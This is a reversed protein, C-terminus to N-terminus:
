NVPLLLEREMNERVESDELHVVEGCFSLPQELRISESLPPISREESSALTSEGFASCSGTDGVNILSLAYTM